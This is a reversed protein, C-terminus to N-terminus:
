RPKKDPNFRLWHNSDPYKCIKAHAAAIQEYEAKTKRWDDVSLTQVQRTSFNYRTGTIAEIARPLSEAPFDRDIDLPWALALKNYNWM